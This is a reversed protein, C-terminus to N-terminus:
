FDSSITEGKAITGLGMYLAADVEDAIFRVSGDVLGANVGGSHMSRAYLVINTTTNICPAQPVSNQCYNLADSLTTNPPNQTSFLISGQNAPNWMRGRVDHGYGPQGSIVDDPAVRIESTLLTHSTGDTIRALPTSYKYRFVGNNKDGLTGGVNFATSGACGVYNSHFGQSSGPGFDEHTMTKPSNLDSPCCYMAIVKLRDPANYWPATGGGALWAMYRDYTATEEMFPLIFFLWNRRESNATDYSIQDVTGIPLTHHAAHFNHCAIGLQKLNNQCHMRRASERAAQVAPLLLAVLVGIIAIVVLLEVITFGARYKAPM